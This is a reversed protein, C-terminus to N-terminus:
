FDTDATVVGVLMMLGILDRGERYEPITAAGVVGWLAIAVVGSVISWKGIGRRKQRESIM